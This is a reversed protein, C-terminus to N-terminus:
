EEASVLEEKNERLKLLQITWDAWYESTSHMAYNLFVLVDIDHEKFFKSLVLSNEKLYRPEVAYIDEFNDVLFPLFAHGYSDRVVMISKGNKVDSKIHALTIEGGTFISYFNDDLSYDEHIIDTIEPSQMDIDDKTFKSLVCNNKAYYYKVYDKDDEYASSQPLTLISKYLSGLFGKKVGTKYEALKTPKLGLQKVFDSYAYYAGLGTWHHDTKFALYEKKHSKFTETLDILVAGKSQERIFDFSQKQYNEEKKFKEPVYVEYPLPPIIIYTEPEGCEEYLQNICNIYKETKEESFKYVEMITNNYIVMGKVNQITEEESETNNDNSFGEFYYIFSLCRNLQLFYDRLPFTDNFYNDFEKTFQANFYSETDFEPMKSLQRNEMESFVADTDLISYLSLTIIPLFFCIIIIIYKLRM